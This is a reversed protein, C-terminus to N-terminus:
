LCPSLPRGAVGTKGWVPDAPDFVLPKVYDAPDYLWHLRPQDAPKVGVNGLETVFSRMSDRQEDYPFLFDHHLPIFVQPQLAQVYMAPDRWGNTFGNLGLIAGAQVSTPWLRHRFVDFVQPYNEKLPGSTDNWTFTFRGVSFQWLLSYGENGATQPRSPGQGPPHLLAVTPDPPMPIPPSPLFDPDPPEPASHLHKVVQTCVGSVAAVRNVESGPVSGRKVVGTCHVTPKFGQAAMDQRAQDCHEPTGFIRMTPNKAAIFAVGEGHDSHAHGYFLAEPRLNALESYTTPVYNPPAPKDDNIYADLLLVHGDIAAALSSVGFWSLIVRDKRVQGTHQDVNGHGFLHSRAAVTSSQLHGGGAFAAPLWTAAVAALAVGVAGLGARRPSGLILRM